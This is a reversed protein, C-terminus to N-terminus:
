YRGIGKIFAAIFAAFLGALLATLTIEQSTPRRLRRFCFPWRVRMGERISNQRYETGPM